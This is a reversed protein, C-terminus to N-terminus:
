GGITEDFVQGLSQLQGKLEEMTASVEEAFASQEKSITGTQQTEKSVSEITKAMDKIIKDVDAAAQQTNNSLKQIEQAVVAFGKGEQGARSAEISANLGLMKTKNSIGGIIKMIEDTKKVAEAANQSLWMLKEGIQALNEASTSIEKVGDSVENFAKEFKSSIERYSVHHKVNLCIGVAGIVRGSENCVPMAMAHYPTGFVEEPVFVSVKEGKFMAQEASSGKKVSDGAKIGLRFTEAEQFIRYEELDCAFVAVDQPYLERLFTSVKQYADLADKGVIKKM